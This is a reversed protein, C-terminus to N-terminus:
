QNKSEMIVTIGYVHDGCEECHENNVHCQEFKSHGSLIRLGSCKSVWSIIITYHHVYCDHM